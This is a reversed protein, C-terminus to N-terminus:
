DCSSNLSILKFQPIFPLVSVSETTVVCATETDDGFVKICVSLKFVSLYVFYNLRAIDFTFLWGCLKCSGVSQKRTRQCLNLLSPALSNAECVQLWELAACDPSSTLSDEIARNCGIKFSGSFTM